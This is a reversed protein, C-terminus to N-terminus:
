YWIIRKTNKDIIFIREYGSRKLPRLLYLTNEPLNNFQIGEPTAIGLGSKIWKKDWYLLIYKEGLEIKFPNNDTYRSPYEDKRSLTTEFVNTFDPKLIHSYGEKDLLVPYKAYKMKGNIYFSPLYVIERGLNTFQYSGNMKEAWDTERWKSTNFVNLYAISMSDVDSLLPRYNIKGVSVYENTVDKINKNRLFSNTPIAEKKIKSALAKEQISYTYRFAKGLRKNNVSYNYPLGSGNDLYSGNFPIHNGKSDIVTNWFHRNSSAGHHPTFDFTVAIGIARSAFLALNALDPCAGERRFLLQQPSLLSIPDIRKPTFNFSELGYIVQICSEVPNPNNKLNYKVDRVLFQFDERWDVLPEILSRYPLIYECFTEFSYSSSWTNHKWESFALDINKILLKSSIVHIDKEIYSKPKALLSDKLKTFVESAMGFDTYDFESFPITNNNVDKLKYNKSSHISMNKILFAAAEYKQNEGTHKYHELVAVLNDKNAGAELFADELTQASMNLLGVFFLISFYFHKFNFNLM